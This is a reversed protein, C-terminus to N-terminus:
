KEVDTLPIQLVQGQHLKANQLHNWKKIIEMGRDSQYYKMAISYLTENEQVIHTIVKKRTEKKNKKLAPQNQARTTSSSSETTGKKVPDIDVLEYSGTESRTVVTVTKSDQNAYYISLMSIPLLIFFLVLLRILPYKLKWKKKKERKRTKKQRRVESRSPLPLGDEKAPKNKPQALERLVEAQDEIRQESM